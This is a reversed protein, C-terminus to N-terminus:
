SKVDSGVAGSGDVDIVVATEDSSEARSIVRSSEPSLALPPALYSPTTFHTLPTAEDTTPVPRYANKEFSSEMPRCLVWTLNKWVSGRHFPHLRQTPGATNPNGDSYYSRNRVMSLLSLAIMGTFIVLFAIVPHDSLLQVLSETNGNSDKSEMGVMILMSLTGLLVYLDLLACTSLFALFHRYNRKGICNGTWPCHHDHNEVCRDCTSCHSARPPRWIRCTDCYKLKMSIGNITIVRPEPLSPRLMAGGADQVTIFPYNPPLQDYDSMAATTGTPAPSNTNQIQNQNSPVTATVSSSPTPLPSPNTLGSNSAAATEIITSTPPMTSPQDEPVPTVSATSETSPQQQQTQSLPPLQSNSSRYTPFNPGLKASLAESPQGSQAISQVVDDVKGDATPPLQTVTRGFTPNLIEASSISNPDIHLDVPLFGPDTFSTKCLQVITMIVLYAFIIIIVVSSRQVLYPLIYVAYLSSLVVILLIAMAFVGCDNRMFLWKMFPVFGADGGRFPVRDVRHSSEYTQRRRRRTRVGVGPTNGTTMGLPTSQGSTNTAWVPPGSANTTNTIGHNSTSWAATTTATATPVTSSPILAPIPVSASGPRSSTLPSSSSASLANINRTVTNNDPAIRRHQQAPRPSMPLISDDLGGGGGMSIHHQHMESSNIDNPSQSPSIPPIPALPPPMSLSASSTSKVPPPPQM